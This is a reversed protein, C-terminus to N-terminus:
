RAGPGRALAAALARPTPEVPVVPVGLARGLDAPTLDDLFVGAGDRLAVAPVLVLDAPPRAALGAQIDQGTLLGAVTIGRGFWDNAVPVVEVALGPVSLGALLRALRPAYLTGSVVTARRPAGPGRRLRRVAAPFADEFRRVLGVGDEAVPFGEYDRAPPLPVGAQLYLEDAAWVFRTGLRPALERQWGHIAEVVAAAEADSV